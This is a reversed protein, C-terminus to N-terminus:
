KLWAAKKFAFFRKLLNPAIARSKLAKGTIPSGSVKIAPARFYLKLFNKIRTVIEFNVLYRM